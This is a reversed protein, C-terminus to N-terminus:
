CYNKQFCGVVWLIGIPTTTHYKFSTSTWHDIKCFASGNTPSTRLGRLVCSLVDCYFFLCNASRNLRSAVIVFTKNRCCYSDDVHVDSSQFGFSSSSKFTRGFVEELADVEFLLLHAISLRIWFNAFTAVGKGPSNSSSIKFSFISQYLHIQQSRAEHRTERSLHPGPERETSCTAVM